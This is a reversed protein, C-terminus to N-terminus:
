GGRVLGARGPVVLVSGRAPLPDLGAAAPCRRRAPTHGGRRRRRWFNASTAGCSPRRCGSHVNIYARKGRTYAHINPNVAKHATCGFQCISKTPAKQSTRINIWFPTLHNGPEKEVRWANVNRGRLWAFLRELVRGAAPLLAPPLDVDLQSM